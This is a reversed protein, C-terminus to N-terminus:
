AAWRFLDGPNFQFGKDAGPRVMKGDVEMEAPPRYTEEPEEFIEIADCRCAWGNPPYNTQWFPDNQPLMTGELGVHEPRVRDDGVTVYKYGWLIAQIAPDQNEQWKGAAYATMTQTRFLSEARYPKIPDIGSAHLAEIMAKTGERSTMGQSTIDLMARELRKEVLEGSDELIRISEVHFIDRLKILEEDPVEIRDRLWGVTKEHVNYRGRAFRMTKAKPLAMLARKRGLLCADLMADALVPSLEQLQNRVETM